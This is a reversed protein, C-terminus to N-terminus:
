SDMSCRTPKLTGILSRKSVRRIPMIGIRIYLICQPILHIALYSADRWRWRMWDELDELPVYLPYDRNEPLSNFLGRIRRYCKGVDHNYERVMERISEFEEIVNYEEVDYAANELTEEVKENFETM